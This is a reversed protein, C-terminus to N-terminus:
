AHGGDSTSSTDRVGAQQPETAWDLLAAGAPQGTDYGSVDEDVAVVVTPENLPARVWDADVLVDTRSM